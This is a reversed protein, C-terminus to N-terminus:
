IGSFELAAKEKELKLELDNQYKELDYLLFKRSFEPIDADDLLKLQNIQSRVEEIEMMLLEINFQHKKYREQVSMKYGL